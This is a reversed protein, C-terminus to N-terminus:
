RRPRPRCPARAGSGRRGARQDEVPDVAREGGDDRRASSCRRVSQMPRVCPTWASGVVNPSLSAPQANSSSRSRAGADRARELPHADALEGAGDAGVRGGIGLDLPDGALPEAELRRRTEVCIRAARGGRRAARRARARRRRARGTRARSGGGRACRPARPRPATRGRGSPSTPSAACACGSRRRASRRARARRARRRARRARSRRREPVLAVDRVRRGLPDDDGVREEREVVHEVAEGPEDLAEDDPGLPHLPVELRAVAEEEALAQQEREDLGAQRAVVRVPEDLAVRHPGPVLLAVEAVSTARRRRSRRARTSRSATKSRSAYVRWTSM